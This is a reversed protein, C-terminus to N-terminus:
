SAFSCCAESTRDNLLLESRVSLHNDIEFGYAATTAIAYVKSVGADDCWGAFQAKAKHSTWRHGCIMIRAGQTSGADMHPGQPDARVLPPTGITLGHQFRVPGNIIGAWEAIIDGINIGVRFCLRRDEADGITLERIRTQFLMAARVAEVASPFEALFGDGTNKVIRGGHEAIAPNVAETLLATLKAHTLEESSHMLRSYGAVDAALIASLRREVRVPREQVM